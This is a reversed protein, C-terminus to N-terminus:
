PMGCKILPIRVPCMRSLMTKIADLMIRKAKINKKEYTEKTTADTPVTVPNTTTSEVIDWLECEQLLLLIM